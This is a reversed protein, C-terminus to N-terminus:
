LVRTPSLRSLYFTPTFEFPYNAILKEGNAMEVNTRHAEAVEETEIVEKARNGLVVLCNEIKM